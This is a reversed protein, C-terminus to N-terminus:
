ARSHRAMLEVEAALLRTLWPDDESWPQPFGKEPIFLQCVGWGIYSFDESDAEEYDDFSQRPTSSWYVRVPIRFKYKDLYKLFDQSLLFQPQLSPESSYFSIRRIKSFDSDASEIGEFEGQPMGLFSIKAFGTNIHIGPVCDTILLPPIYLHSGKLEYRDLSIQAIMGLIRKPSITLWKRDEAIGRKNM